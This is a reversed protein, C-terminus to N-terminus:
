LSCVEGVGSVLSFEGKELVVKEPAEIESGALASGDSYATKLEHLVESDGFDLRSSSTGNANLADATLRIAVSVNYAYISVARWKSNWEMNSSKSLRRQGCIKSVYGCLFAAEACFHVAQLCEARGLVCLAVSPTCTPPPLPARFIEDSTGGTPAQTAFVTAQTLVAFPNHCNDFSALNLLAAAVKLSASEVSEPTSCNRLLRLDDDILTMALSCAPSCAEIPDPQIHLTWLGLFEDSTLPLFNLRTNGSDEWDFWLIGKTSTATEMNSSRPRARRQTPKSLEEMDHLKSMAIDKLQSSTLGLELVAEGVEGTWIKKNLCFQTVPCLISLATLALGCHSDSDEQIQHACLSLCVHAVELLVILASDEGYSALEESMEEYAKKMSVYWDSSKVVKLESAFDFAKATPVANGFMDWLYSLKCEIATGVYGAVVNECSVGCFATRAKQRMYDPTFEGKEWGSFLALNRAVCMNYTRLSLRKLHSNDSLWTTSFPLNVLQSLDIVQLEPIIEAHFLCKTIPQLAKFVAQLSETDTTQALETTANAVVDLVGLCVPSIMGSSGISWCQTLYEECRGLTHLLIKMDGRSNSCQWQLSGLAIKMTMCMDLSLNHKCNELVRGMGGEAELTEVYEKFYFGNLKFALRPDKSRGAADYLYALSQTKGIPRVCNTFVLDWRDEASDKAVFLDRLKTEQREKPLEQLAKLWKSAIFNMGGEGVIAVGLLIRLEPPMVGGKLAELFESPQATSLENDDSLLDSEIGEDADPQSHNTLTEIALTRNCNDVHRQITVKKEYRSAREKMYCIVAEAVLRAGTYLQQELLERILQSAIDWISACSARMNYVTSTDISTEEQALVTSDFAELVVQTEKLSKELNMRSLAREKAPLSGEQLNMEATTRDFNELKERNVKEFLEHDTKDNEAEGASDLGVATKGQSLGVAGVGTVQVREKLWTVYLETSKSGAGTELAKSLAQLRRERWDFSSAFKRLWRRFNFNQNADVGENWMTCENGVRLMLDAYLLWARYSGKFDRRDKIDTLLTLAESLCGLEILINALKAPVDVDDPRLRDATSYDGKAESLWRTRESKHYARMDAPLDDNGLLATHIDAKAVAMDAARVWLSYDQRYLLAAVHYSGYAKKALEARGFHVKEPFMGLDDEISQANIALEPLSEDSELSTQLTHEYVLGLSSYVQPASPADKAVLKLKDIASKSDGRAHAGMAEGLLETMRLSKFNRLRPLSRRKASRRSSMKPTRRPKAANETSHVSTQLNEAPEEDEVHDASDSEYDSAEEENRDSERGYILSGQIVADEHAAQSGRLRNGVTTTSVMREKHESREISKRKITRLKQQKRPVKRRLQPRPGESIGHEVLAMETDLDKLLDNSTADSTSTKRKRPSM